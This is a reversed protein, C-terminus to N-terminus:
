RSDRGDLFRSGCFDLDGYFLKLIEDETARDCAELDVTLEYGKDRMFDLRRERHNGTPQSASCDPTEAPNEAAPVAAHLDTDM